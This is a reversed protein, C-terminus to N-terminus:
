HLATEPTDSHAANPDVSDSAPRGSLSSPANLHAGNDVGVGLRDVLEGGLWGTAMVMGLAIVSLIFPIAGPAAPNDRRMVGSIAFLAIVALNGLGHMTGIAKARTGFPIAAWDILGAIAALVGGVVGGAILWYAFERWQAHPTVMGVVDAIVSFTLLGLPFVILMPHVAHGILKAKSEM